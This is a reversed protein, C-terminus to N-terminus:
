MNIMKTHLLFMKSAMELLFLPCLVCSGPNNNRLLVVPVMIVLSDLIVVDRPPDFCDNPGLVSGFGLSVHIYHVINLKIIYGLFICLRKGIILKWFFIKSLGTM